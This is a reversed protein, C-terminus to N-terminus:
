FNIGVKIASIKFLHITFFLILFQVRELEYMPLKHPYNDSGTQRFYIINKYYSRSHACLYKSLDQKGNM